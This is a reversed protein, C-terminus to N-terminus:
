NKWSLFRFVENHLVTLKLKKFCSQANVLLPKIREISYVRRSLLSLISTQYGSGTGIELIVENGKLSLVQTMLAVIYPQSITQEFGIPLPNNEYAYSQFTSPM